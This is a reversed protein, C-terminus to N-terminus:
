QLSVWRVFYDMPFMGDWPHDYHNMNGLDTIREIGLATIEKSFKNKREEEIFLGLSQKNHDVYTYLTELTDVPHVFVTRYYCAESLETEDSYLVSWELGKPAFVEGTFEYECRKNIIRTAMDEPITQKPIRTLVKEMSKALQEAFDLPSVSGGEEVFVTHPSNCGLQEFISADLAVKYATDKLNEKTIAHKSIGVFSYKPGFIIDKVWYKKPAKVVSEVANKGGWAIRLDANKSLTEQSKIDNKDCYVCSVTGFIDEGSLNEGSPLIVHTEKINHIMQPLILGNIKPVKIVNINKTILGQVLSLLGLVPVNGALWHTVIGQPHAMISKQISPHFVFNDLHQLQGKLSLLLLNELNEKKFFLIVYFLGLHGFRKNFSANGTSWKKSLADFFDLITHIPLVQVRKAKNKLNNCHEEYNLIKTYANLNQNLDTDNSLLESNNSFINYLAM